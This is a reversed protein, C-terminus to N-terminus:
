VGKLVNMSRGVSFVFEMAGRILNGPIDMIKMKPLTSLMAISNRVAKVKAKLGWNRASHVSDAGSIELGAPVSNKVYQDKPIKDTTESSDVKKNVDLDQSNVSFSIEMLALVCLMTQLLNLKQLIM